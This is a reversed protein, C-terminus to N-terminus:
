NIDLGGCKHTREMSREAEYLDKWVTTLMMIKRTKWDMDQLEKKTWEIIGGSCMMVGIAWAIMCSIFNGFNLNSKCILKVRRIYENGISEKM